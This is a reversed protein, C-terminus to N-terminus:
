KIVIWLQSVTSLNCVVNLMWTIFRLRGFFNFKLILCQWGAKEYNTMRICIKFGGTKDFLFYFNGKKTEKSSQTL